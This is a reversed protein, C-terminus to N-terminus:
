EIGAVLDGEDFGAHGAHLEEAPGAGVVVLRGVRRVLDIVPAHDPSRRDNAFPDLVKALSGLWQTEFAVAGCGSRGIRSRSALPAHGRAEDRIERM